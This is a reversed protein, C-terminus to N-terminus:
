WSNPIVARNSSGSGNRVCHAVADIECVNCQEPCSCGAVCVLVRYSGLSIGLVNTPLLKTSPRPRAHQECLAPTIPSWTRQVRGEVCGTAAGLKHAGPQLPVPSQMHQQLALTSPCVPPPVHQCTAPVHCPYAVSRSCPLVRLYALVALRLWLCPCLLISVRRSCVKM